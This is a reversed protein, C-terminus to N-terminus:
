SAMTSTTIQRRSVQTETCRMPVALEASACHLWALSATDDIRAQVQIANTFESDGVQGDARALDRRICVRSGQDNMPSCAREIPLAAECVTESLVRPAIGPETIIM